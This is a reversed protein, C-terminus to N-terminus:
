LESKVKMLAKMQKTAYHTTITAIRALLFFQRAKWFPHTEHSM